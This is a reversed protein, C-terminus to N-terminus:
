KFNHHRAGILGENSKSRTIRALQSPPFKKGQSLLMVNKFCSYSAKSVTPSNLLFSEPPCMGLFTLHKIICRIAVYSFYCFVAITHWIDCPM